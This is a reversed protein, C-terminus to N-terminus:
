VEVLLYGDPGFLKWLQVCFQLMFMLDLYTLDSALEVRPM